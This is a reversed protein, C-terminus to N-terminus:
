RREESREIGDQAIGLEDEVIKVAVRRLLHAPYQLADFAVAPMEEAEDVVHEIKRLDLRSLKHEREGIEPEPIDPLRHEAPHLRQGALLLQRQLDLHCRVHRGTVTVFTSQSLDEEVQHSVRDLERIRALDHYLGGLR